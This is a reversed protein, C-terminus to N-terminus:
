SQGPLRPTKAAVWAILKPVAAAMIAGGIGCLILIAPILKPNPVYARWGSKKQQESM